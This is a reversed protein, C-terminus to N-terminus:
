ENVVEIKPTGDPGPKRGDIPAGARPRRIDFPMLARVLSQGLSLKESLATFVDSLKPYIGSAFTVSKPPTVLERASVVPTPLVAPRPEAPPAIMLRTALPRPVTQYKSVLMPLREYLIEYTEAIAQLPSKTLAARNQPNSESLADIRPAKGGHSQDGIPLQNRSAWAEYRLSSNLVGITNPLKVRVLNNPGEIPKSVVVPAPTSPRPLALAASRDQDARSSPNSRAVRVRPLKLTNLRALIVASTLEPNSALGPLRFVKELNSRSLKSVIRRAAIEKPTFVQANNLSDYRSASPSDDESSPEQDKEDEIPLPSAQTPSGVSAKQAYSFAPTVRNPTISRPAPETAITRRKEVVTWEGDSDSGNDSQVLSPARRSTTAAKPSPLDDDEQDLAAFRNSLHVQNKQMERYSRDAEERPIGTNETGRAKELRRAVKPQQGKDIEGSAATNTLKFYIYLGIAFLGATFVTAVWAAVKHATEEWSAGKEIKYYTAFFTPAAQQSTINNTTM